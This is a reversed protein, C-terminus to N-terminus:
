PLARPFRGWVLFRCDEQSYGNDELIRAIVEQRYDPIAGPQTAVYAGLLNAQELIEDDERGASLGFLVAALFADGAGVTDVVRVKFGAHESWRGDNLIAAGESGRTVCVIQCGFEAALATVAERADAPLDFWTAMQRLEAENLKVLDAYRLSRSVVDPSEHPPRLNVDFVRYTALECLREICLRSRPHRQALSGYVIASASATRDILGDNLEIRDWAAPEVIRYSPIGEGTMSVSVFGTELEPDRQILGTDIGRAAIRLLAEDGLRDVGVRSVISAAVGLANLHGAVNFPAGGLFLGSPLSDWLVEGVCLVESGVM